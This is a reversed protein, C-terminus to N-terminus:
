FWCVHWRDGTHGPRKGGAITTLVIPRPFAARTFAQSVEANVLRKTAPDFELVLEVEKSGDKDKTRANASKSLSESVPVDYM